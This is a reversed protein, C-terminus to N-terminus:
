KAENALLENLAARPLRTVLIVKISDVESTTKEAIKRVRASKSKKSLSELFNTLETHLKNAGTQDATAISVRFEFLSGDSQLRVNVTEPWKSYKEGASANVKEDILKRALSLASAEFLGGDPSELNGFALYQPQNKEDFSLDELAYDLKSNWTFKEEKSYNELNIILRLIDDVFSVEGAAPDRDLDDKVEIEDTIEFHRTTAAHGLVPTAGVLVLGLYVGLTALILVSNNLKSDKM